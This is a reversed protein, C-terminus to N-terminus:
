VMFCFYPINGFHLHCADAMFVKQLNPITRKVFSPAFFIGNVLNAPSGLQPFIQEKHEKYRKMVFSKREDPPLGGMKANKQHLVKDAIIIKDLNQMTTKRLTFSLELFHGTKRLNEKVFHAYGVNEEANGFILKCAETRAGQIIAETFCYPKRSM